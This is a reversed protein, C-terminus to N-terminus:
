RAMFFNRAYLEIRIDNSPRTFNCAQQWKGEVATTYLMAVQDGIRVIRLTGQFSDGIEKSFRGNYKGKARYGSFIQAPNKAGKGLELSIGELKDDELETGEVSSRFGVMQDMDSANKLFDVYCCVQVDFDGRFIFKSTIGRASFSGTKTEVKLRGNEISVDAQKYNERESAKFIYGTRGWIDERISDFSDNYRALKEPPLSKDIRLSTADYACAIFIGAFSALCWLLSRKIMNQM